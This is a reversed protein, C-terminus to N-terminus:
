VVQGILTSMNRHQIRNGNGDALVIQPGIPGLESSDSMVIFDAGLAILTGASKAFDPVVIRLDATGVKTRVMTILKEAVDVDGGPTHLLLDLDEGDPINHLLDVFGVTDDRDIWTGVGTVYCILHRGTHEEILRVAAQRQYRDAHLAEYFPTKSPEPVLESIVDREDDSDDGNDNQEDTM